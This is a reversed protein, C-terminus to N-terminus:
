INIEAIVSNKIVEGIPLGNLKLENWLDTDDDFEFLVEGEEHNNWTIMDCIWKGDWDGRKRVRWFKFPHGEMFLEYFNGDGVYYFVISHYHRWHYNFVDEPNRSEADLYDDERWGLEDSYVIPDQPHWNNLIIRKEM